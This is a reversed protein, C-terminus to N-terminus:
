YFVLIQHKKKSAWLDSITRSQNALIPTQHVELPNLSM